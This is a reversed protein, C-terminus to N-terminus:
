SSGTPSETALRPSELTEVIQANASPAPARSKNTYQVKYMPLGLFQSRDGEEAAYDGPTLSVWATDGDKLRLEDSWKATWGNRKGRNNNRQNDRRSSATLPINAM